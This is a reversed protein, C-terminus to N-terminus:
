RARHNVQLALGKGPRYRNMAAHRDHSLAEISSCSCKSSVEWTDPPAPAWQSARRPPQHPTPIKQAGLRSNIAVAPSQASSVSGEPCQGHRTCGPAPQLSSLGFYLCLSVAVAPPGLLSSTPAAWYVPEKFGCRWRWICGGADAKGHQMLILVIMAIATLMQLALPHDVFRERNEALTTRCGAPIAAQAIQLFTTPWAGGIATLTPSPLLSAANAVNMSGGYLIFKAPTSPPWRWNRACRRM